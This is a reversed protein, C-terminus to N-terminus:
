WRQLAWFGDELVGVPRLPTIIAMEAIDRGHMPIQHYGKRLDVKNFFRCGSMKAAFDMM